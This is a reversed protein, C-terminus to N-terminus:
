INERHCFQTAGFMSKELRLISDAFLYTHTIFLFDCVSPDPNYYGLLFEGSDFNYIAQIDGPQTIKSAVYNIASPFKSLSISACVKIENELLLKRTEASFYYSDFVLLTNKHGKAQM